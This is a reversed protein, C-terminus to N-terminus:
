SPGLSWSIPHTWTCIWKDTWNPALPVIFCFVLCLTSFGCSQPLNMKPRDIICKNAGSCVYVYVCIRVRVCACLACMYVCLCVRMCVRVCMCMRVCVSVFLCVCACSCVCLFRGSPGTIFGIKLPCFFLINYQTIAWIGYELSMNLHCLYLFIKMSSSM